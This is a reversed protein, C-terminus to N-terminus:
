SLTPEPWQCIEEFALIRGSTVKIVIKRPDADRSAEFLVKCDMEYEGSIRVKLTRGLLTPTKKPVDFSAAREYDLDFDPDGEEQLIPIEWNITPVQMGDLFVHCLDNEGPKRLVRKQKLNPIIGATGEPIQLGSVQHGYKDGCDQCLAKITAAWEETVAGMPKGCSSCYVKSMTGVPGCFSFRDRDHVRSDPIQNVPDAENAAIVRDLESNTGKQDPIITEIDM